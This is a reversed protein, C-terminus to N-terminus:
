WTAGGGRGELRRLSLGVTCYSGAHQTLNYLTLGPGLVIRSWLPEKVEEAFPVGNQSKNWWPGGQTLSICRWRSGTLGGELLSPCSSPGRKEQCPGSLSSPRGCSANTWKFFLDCHMITIIPVDCDHAPNITYFVTNTHRHTHTYCELSNSPPTCVRGEPNGDGPRPCTM